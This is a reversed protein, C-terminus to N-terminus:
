QDRLACLHNHGISASKDWTWNQKVDTSAFDGKKKAEDRNEYVYRMLYGLQEFDPEAWQGHYLKPNFFLTDKIDVFGKIGVLYANKENVFETQGSYHTTIVPLGCAMAEM